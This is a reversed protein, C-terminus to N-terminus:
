IPEHNGGTAIDTMAAMPEAAHILSTGSEVMAMLEPTPPRLVLRPRAPMIDDAVLEPSQISPRLPLVNSSAKAVPSAPTEADQAGKSEESSAQSSAITALWAAPVSSKRLPPAPTFPWHLIFADGFGMLLAEVGTKDPGLDSQLEAPEMVLINERLPAQPKGEHMVTRDLTRYGIVEKAVFNATEGANVRVIIQTGIMSAWSSAIHQGYLEQIQAMDQVGLVVRIGKSRGIDLLPAVQELKGLQPFEDLFFWLRRQRSEGFEPSNIHGSMLTVISQITSKALATYKGSGQLVLVRRRSKPNDLWEIFSFRREPPHNGWAKALDAVLTMHAGFNVLISQATKDPADVVHRAEPLHALVIALLGERPLCVMDYLSQWGWAIGRETQLKILIATLVQRASTHWLPDAGEPILRAALERADQRNRCDRGIDWAHSRADWPAFLTIHPLWKTFDGKHDYLVVRDGRAIAAKVLPQIIATKGGGISGVLLFHRTERDRSLRWKFDPHLSLGEGSVRCERASLNNVRRRAKQGRWLQRGVVHRIASRPMAILFGLCAGCSIAVALALDFRGTFWLASTNQAIGALYAQYDRAMHTLFPLVGYLRLAAWHKLHASFEALPYPYPIQWLLWSISLFAIVMVFGAIVVGLRWKGPVTDARRM